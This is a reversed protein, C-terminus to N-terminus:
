YRIDIAQLFKCTKAVEILGSDTVESGSIDLIEWSTDALPIIVEDCLMKRRRAIAAITIRIHPPFAISIDSLHAIIEQLNKGIVGLCLSVLSPPKSKGLRRRCSLLGPSQLTPSFLSSKSPTCAMFNSNLDLKKLSTTIEKGKGM